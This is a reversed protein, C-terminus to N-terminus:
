HEESRSDKIALVVSLTIITIIGVAIINFIFSGIGLQNLALVVALFYIFFSAFSSIAQEFSFTVVMFNKLTKDVEFEHLVRLVLKGVVRGIIFGFLLIIVSLILGNLLNYALEQMLAQFAKINIGELVM